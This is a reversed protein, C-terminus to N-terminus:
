ILEKERIVKEVAGLGGDLYVAGALAECLEAMVRGSTWIHSAEEGKGWHVYRFLEISEAAKRLRTMNVIDSKAVSLEGKSYLGSKMLSELVIVDIVADGLTALADMHFGEPLDNELSYALRTLARTLLEHNKFRYGIIEELEDPPRALGNNKVPKANGATM